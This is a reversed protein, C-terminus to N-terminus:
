LSLVSLDTPNFFKICVFQEFKKKHDEFLQNLVTMSTMKISLIQPPANLNKSLKPSIKGEPMSKDATVM